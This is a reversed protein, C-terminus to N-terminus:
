KASDFFAAMRTAEPTSVFDAKSSQILDAVTKTSPCNTISIKKNQAHVKAVIAKIANFDEFPINGTGKWKTIENFDIEILPM